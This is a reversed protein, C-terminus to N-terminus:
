QVIVRYSSFHVINDPPIVKGFESLIQEVINAKEEPLQKRFIIIAYSNNNKLFIKPVSNTGLFIQRFLSRKDLM